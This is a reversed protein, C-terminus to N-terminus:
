IAMQQTQQYQAIIREGKQRQKITLNYTENQLKKLSKEPLDKLMADSYQYIENPSFTPMLQNGNRYRTISIEKIFYALFTNVTILHDDTDDTDNTSKKIKM